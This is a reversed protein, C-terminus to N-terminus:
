DICLTVMAGNDQLVDNCGFLPTVPACTNSRALCAGECQGAKTCHKGSDRTTKVCARAGSKGAASWAGGKKVCAQEQPSMAPVVPEEAAAEPAVEAAPESAAVEPEAEEAPKAAEPKAAEGPKATVAAAPAAAEAPADLSTVAIADGTVPNSEAVPGDAGKPGGLTCGALLTCVAFVAWIRM